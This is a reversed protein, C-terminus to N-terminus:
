DSLNMIREALRECGRGDVTSQMRKSVAARYSLDKRKSAIFDSIFDLVETISNRVDGAYPMLGLAALKEAAFLQNDALTYVVSPLGCALLEYVTVGGATVAIDCKKMYDSINSINYLLCVNKCEGWKEELVPKNSNYKGIIVYYELTGFWDCRSLFDLLKGAVNFNDTGGTSVLFKKVSEGYSRSVSSFEERLPVYKCGLAFDTGLGAKGYAERYNMDEAYISYNVLLDVPYVFSNIDDIYVTRTKERLKKLYTETVYYSDIVLTKINNKQIEAIVIDEEGELNNWQTGLSILKFGRSEILAEQVNDASIFVCDAGKRRLTEAISLCRMIHGTGIQANGDARFGIM